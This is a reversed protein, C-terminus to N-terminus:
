PFSRLLFPHGALSTALFFLVWALQAELASITEEYRKKEAEFGARLSRTLPHTVSASLVCACIARKPICPSRPLQARPTTITSQAAHTCTRPLTSPGDLRQRQLNLKVFCYVPLVAPIYNHEHRIDTNRIQTRTKLTIPDTPVTLLFTRKPTHLLTYSWHLPGNWCFRACVITATCGKHETVWSCGRSRKGRKKTETRKTGIPGGNYENNYNDSDNVPLM